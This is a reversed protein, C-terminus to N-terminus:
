PLREYMLSSRLRSFTPIDLIKTLFDAKNDSSPVHTPTCINKDRLVRVWELKCDIHKMRTNFCTDNAFIRAADNDMQLKFPKPFPIGMERSIYSLHLIDQTANGAGLIESASSSTDAHAEDIFENAFCATSVGSKWYVPAENLTVVIAMQSRRKNQRESNGAYDTDCFFEWGYQEDAICQSSFISSTSLSRDKAYLPASLCWYKAGTLYRYAYKLADMASETPNAQHQGIRSYTFALDIRNTMQLWGLMGLGTHFRTRDSPSLPLSDGDSNIQARIPRPAPKLDTWGMIELANDIYKYMELYSREDGYSMSLLMGLLDTPEGDTSVFELDKCDFRSTIIDAAKTVSDEEADIYNDDVYTLITVDNVPHYFIARDNFGREFGESELFPAYTDEWRRPASNEGYLPGSQKFLEWELAIPNYMLLYKKIHEPFEDSQLFATRQDLIAVRRTGRNPRFYSIRITYLKVVHSYYNFGIGDATTKDEKFGQKVGRTKYEGSRRYDLLYRGTVAAKRCENYEPDSPDVITLVGM